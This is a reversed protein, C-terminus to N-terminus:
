ALLAMQRSILKRRRDLTARCIKCYRSQHPRNPKTSYGTNEKSFLHGKPCERRYMRRPPVALWFRLVERIKARRRQGLFTYMMFMWGIAAQGCVQVTWQPKRKARLWEPHAKANLRGSLLHALRELVDRDTMTVSIRFNNKHNMGFWGEGEILGAAWAIEATTIM